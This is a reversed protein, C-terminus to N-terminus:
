RPRGLLKPIGRAGADTATSDHFYYEEGLAVLPAAGLKERAGDRAGERDDTVM